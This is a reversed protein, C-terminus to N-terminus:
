DVVDESDITMVSEWMEITDEVVKERFGRGAFHMVVRGIGRRKECGVM